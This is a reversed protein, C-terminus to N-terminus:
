LLLLTRGFAHKCIIAPRNRRMHHPHPSERAHPRRSPGVHHPILTLLSQTNVYYSLPHAGLPTSAYSLPVIGECTIRTHRNGQTITFQMHGHSREPPDWTILLLHLFSLAHQSSRFGIVPSPSTLHPSHAPRAFPAIEKSKQAESREGRHAIACCCLAHSVPRPLDMGMSPFDQYYFRPECVVCCCLARKQKQTKKQPACVVACQFCLRLCPLALSPFSGFSLRASLLFGERKKQNQKTKSNDCKVPAHVPANGRNNKLESKKLYLINFRARKCTHYNHHHHVLTHFRSRACDLAPCYM